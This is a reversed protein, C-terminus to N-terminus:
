TPFHRIIRNPKHLGTSIWKPPIYQRRRWPLIYSLCRAILYHRFIFATREESVDTLKVLSCTTVCWFISRNSTVATLVEFGVCIMKSATNGKLPGVAYRVLWHRCGICGNQGTQPASTVGTLVNGMEEGLTWRGSCEGNELLKIVGHVVRALNPRSAGDNGGGWDTYPPPPLRSVAFM